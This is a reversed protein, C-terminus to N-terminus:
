SKKIYFNYGDLQGIKVNSFIDLASVNSRLSYSILKALKTHNQINSNESRFILNTVDFGIM